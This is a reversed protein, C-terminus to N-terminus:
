SFDAVPPGRWGLGAWMTAESWGAQVSGLTPRVPWAPQDGSTATSVSALAPVGTWDCLPCDESADVVPFDADWPLSSVPEHHHHCHATHAAHAVHHAVVHELQLAHVGGWLLLCLWSGVNRMRIMVASPLPRRRKGDALLFSHGGGVVNEQCNLGMM